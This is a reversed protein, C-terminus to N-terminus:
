IYPRSIIRFEKQIKSLSFSARCQHIISTRATLRLLACEVGWVRSEAYTVRHMCFEGWWVLGAGKVTPCAGTICARYGAVWVRYGVSLVGYGVGWVEHGIGWVGYGM